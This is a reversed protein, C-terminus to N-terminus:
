PNSQQGVDSTRRGDATRQWSEYKKLVAAPETSIWLYGTKRDTLRKHDYLIVGDRNSYIPRNTGIEAMRAWGVAGPREVVGTDIVYVLGHLQNARFWAVAADVAAITRPVPDPFDMLFAVIGASERAALSAHEYSRAKVPVLTIPDHQQGWITRKGDVAVQSALICEVGRTVALNALGRQAPDPVPMDASHSAVGRLVKLVNV